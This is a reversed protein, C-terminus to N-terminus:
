KRQKGATTDATAKTEERDKGNKNRGIFDLYIKQIIQLNEKLM